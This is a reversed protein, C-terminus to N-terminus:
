RVRSVCTVGPDGPARLARVNPAGKKFFPGLEDSPTAKHAGGEAEQWFASLKASSMPVGALLLGRVICNEVIERRTFRSDRM